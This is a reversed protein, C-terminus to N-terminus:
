FIKILLMIPFILVVIGLIRRFYNVGQLIEQLAWIILAAAAFGSFFDAVRGNNLISLSTLASWAILWLNPMQWIVVKGTKDKWIQDWLSQDHHRNRQRKM